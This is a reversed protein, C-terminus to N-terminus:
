SKVTVHCTSYASVLCQSYACHSWTNSSNKTWKNQSQYTDESSRDSHQQWDMVVVTHEVAHQWHAASWAEVTTTENHLLRMVKDVARSKMEFNFNTFITSKVSFARSLIIVTKSTHHACNFKKVHQWHKQKWIWNESYMKETSSNLATQIHVDVKDDKTDNGKYCSNDTELQWLGKVSWHHFRCLFNIRSM